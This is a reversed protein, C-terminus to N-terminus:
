HYYKVNKGYLSHVDFMNILILDDEHLTYQMNRCQVRVSGTLIYILEISKHWYRELNEIALVSFEMPSSTKFTILEQNINM